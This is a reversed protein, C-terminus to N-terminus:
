CKSKYYRKNAMDNTQKHNKLNKLEVMQKHNKQKEQPNKLMVNIQWIM